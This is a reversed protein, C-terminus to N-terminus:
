RSGRPAGKSSASEVLVTEVVFLHVPREGGVRPARYARCTVQVRCLPISATLCTLSPNQPLPHAPDPRLPEGSPEGASDLSVRPRAMARKSLCAYRKQLFVESTKLARQVIKVVFGTCTVLDSKPSSLVPNPTQAYQTQPKLTYACVGFRLGSAM